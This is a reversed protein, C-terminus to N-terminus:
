RYDVGNCDQPSPHNEYKSIYLFTKQLLKTEPYSGAPQSQELKHLWQDIPAKDALSHKLPGSPRGKGRKPVHELGDKSRKKGASALMAIRAAKWWMGIAVKIQDRSKGPVAKCVNVMDYHGYKKLAKLLAVKEDHPWDNFNVLRSNQEGDTYYSNAPRKRIRRQRTGNEQLVFKQSSKGRLLCLM